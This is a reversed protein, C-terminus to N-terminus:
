KEEVEKVKEGLKAGTERRLSLIIGSYLKKQKIANHYSCQLYLPLQPQSLKGGDLFSKFLM